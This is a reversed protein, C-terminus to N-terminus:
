LRITIQNDVETVHPSGWAALEAQHKEAWSRVTGTLTVTNGSVTADIATADLQANRILAQAIRREADPASPKESITVTNAVSNVGRLHEVARKAAQRQFDWKVEGQLTVNHNDIRAKVTNPVNSAWTLAHEVAKAIDTESVSETANPHISLDDVVATVGRVRLAARTAALRTSYKDVEGSLSVTGDDVAVGIGASDVAPTWSLEDQVAAQIDHDKSTSPAPSM